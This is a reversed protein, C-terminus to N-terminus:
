RQARLVNYIDPGATPVGFAFHLRGLMLFAGTVLGLEVLEPDRFHKRMEAIFADDIRTHETAFREAFELAARERASCAVVGALKPM